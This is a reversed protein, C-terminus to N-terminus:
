TRRVGLSIQPGPCDMVAAICRIMENELITLQKDLCICAVLARLIRQKVQPYANALQKVAPGFHEVQCQERELLSITYLGISNAGIGFARQIELTQEHGFYAFTSLVISFPKAVEATSKYVAKSPTTKEFQHALYHKVLQYLCWEYMDVQQDAKILTRLNDMFRQYQLASMCKLAPFSLELLPLRYSKDVSNIWEWAQLTENIRSDKSLNDKIDHLQKKRLADNSDLLLAYVVSIVGCPDHALALLGEDLHALEGSVTVTHESLSYEAKASKNTVHEIAAEAAAAVFVTKKLQEQSHKQARKQSTKSYIPEAIKKIDRKIVQGDWRPLIRKIRTKIAPHTAFFSGLRRADGIFMHSAEQSLPTRLGSGADYGGIIKLADAIGNPNRTFQVASADALYERQRSIAAKIMNAFFAGIWGLALLGFGVAVVRVDNNKNRSSHSVSNYRQSHVVFEGINSIFIIGSLLAILQMNLRMDGNLIHSFEHAVVGQLQERNLQELAGQTIGIVADASTHGAAFANIGIEDKLLYVSPVPMGSALAMEEVVNLVQRQEPAQSNPLLREGGLSEAIRRGGDRLQYWKFAIACGIVSTMVLSVMIFLDTSFFSGENAQNLGNNHSDFLWFTSAIIVNSLGILLIVALVFLLVLWKSNRRAHDQETFFNM